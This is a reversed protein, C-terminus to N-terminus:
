LGSPPDVSAPYGFAQCVPGRRLPPRTGHPSVAAARGSRPAPGSAPAPRASRRAAGPPNPRRRSGSRAAPCRPALLDAAVPVPRVELVQVAVLPHDLQVQLRRRPMGREHLQRRRGVHDDLVHPRVHLVLKPDREVVHVLDIGPQHIAADAPEPLAPGYAARAPTSWIACPIPPSILMVPSGPCPGTRTPIGIASRVAPFRSANPTMVASNSRSRVPTPRHTCVESSSTCVNM